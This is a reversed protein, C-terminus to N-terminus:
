LEDGSINGRIFDIIQLLSEKFEPVEPYLLIGGSYLEAIRRSNPITAIIPINEVRCYKIVDDNGIGYRNVVVGFKKDLERMTEVALKLDHLGFPTPETVLIVFDADKSAEIVPCSTGPPSDYLKIIEDSSKGDVYKKTQAILPVAQEQGIDLRSEIFILNDLKYERLEGMKQPIMPLSNTPCLESCAYCSHCLEPFVMIQDVIQIVAHFNCVKQCNGCLACKESNWRPVMKFKEEQHILNGKIFLGSNPEEVDLDTLIVKETEALLAALNTSLTTKGTGGKGSAIAIKM